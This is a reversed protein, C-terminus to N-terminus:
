ANVDMRTILDREASTLKGIYCRGIHLGYYPYRRTKPKSHQMEYYPGLEVLLDKKLFCKGKLRGPLQCVPCLRVGYSQTRMAVWSRNKKVMRKNRRYKAHLSGFTPSFLPPQNVSDSEVTRSRRSSGLPSRPLKSLRLKPSPGLTLGSTSPPVEATLDVM